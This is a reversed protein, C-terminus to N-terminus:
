PFAGSLTPTCRSPAMVPSRLRGSSCGAAAAAIAAIAILTPGAM